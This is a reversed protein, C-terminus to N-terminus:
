RATTGGALSFVAEAGDRQGIPTPSCRATRAPFVKALHTTPM